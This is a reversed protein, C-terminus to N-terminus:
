LDPEEHWTRDKNIRAFTRVLLFVPVAIILNIVAFAIISFNFHHLVQNCTELGIFIIICNLLTMSAASLNMSAGTSSLAIRVLSGTYLGLGLAYIMMGLIVFNNSVTCLVGACILGCFSILSGYRILNYFSYKGALINILTNSIVYGSFIICQYIVYVKFTQHQNELIIAPSLGIWSIFPIMSLGLSMIGIIFIKNTFINKYSRVIQIVDIKNTHLKGPPMYKYLGLLSVIGLVGSVIFICEWNSVSMIFTGILPGALPAFISINSLISTLKVAAVDDFLEHIMSYGIFIFCMGMGQFFRAALFQNISHAFPIILTAVLFLLNGCLLVKRKGIYDALPALFIQLVSGGIIFYILSLAIDTLPAHFLRVIQPMAPM